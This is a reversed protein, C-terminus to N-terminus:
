AGVAWAERAWCSNLQRRTPFGWCPPVLQHATKLGFFHWQFSSLTVSTGWDCSMYKSTNKDHNVPHATCWPTHKKRTNMFINRTLVYSLSPLLLNWLHQSKHVPLVHYFHLIYRSCTSPQWPHHWPWTATHISKSAALDTPNESCLNKAETPWPSPVM